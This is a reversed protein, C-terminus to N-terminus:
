TRRSIQGLRIKEMVQYEWAITYADEHPLHTHQVTRTPLHYLEELRKSFGWNKDFTRDVSALFGKQMSHTEFFAGYRQPHSASYPIPLDSTHKQILENIFGGDYVNNDSVLMLKTGALKARTEWKARFHQFQEIMSVEQMQESLAGKYELEALVASQKSWFEDWCRPEFQTVNPRYNCVLFHELERLNEDMVSAGIAMTKDQSRGGSREIDFALVWVM